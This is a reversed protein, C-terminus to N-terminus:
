VATLLGKKLNSFSHSNINLEVISTTESLFENFINKEKTLKYQSIIQAIEELNIGEQYLSILDLFDKRGKPTRGRQALTYIKLVFLYNKSLVTFGEVFQTHKILDEVPIGLVSFYPLYIDIEVEDKIAQYKKLRENKSVRYQKNFSSLVPYDIIIDIDKSKLAKTYFYVAWGGILVFPILKQLSILEEFSKQTVLSHYYDM